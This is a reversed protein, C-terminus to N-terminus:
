RILRKRNKAIDNNNFHMIAQAPQGTRGARGIEQLYAELTTPPRCHIVREISPANVGMGLAVTALVLRLQPNPKVLEQIIIKKMSNLYDKHYQAFIRNQPEPEGQYALDGLEYSIYQYFYGLCELSEVYVVTVPFNSRKQKLENVIPKIFDNYKEYKRLNPLRRTIEIFINPRDVNETVVVEDNYNLIKALREISTRTATATLALHLSKEFICTLEGM